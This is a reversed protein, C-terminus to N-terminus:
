TSTLTQSHWIGNPQKRQHTLTYTNTQSDTRRQKNSHSYSPLQYMYTFGCIHRCGTPKTQTGKIYNELDWQTLNWPNILQTKLRLLFGQELYNSVFYASAGVKILEHKFHQTSALLGDGLVQYPDDLLYLTNWNLTDLCWICTNGLLLM